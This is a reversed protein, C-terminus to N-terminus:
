EPPVGGRCHGAENRKKTRRIKRFCMSCSQAHGKGDWLKSVIGVVADKEGLGWKRRLQMKEEESAPQFRDLEIGSYIRTM